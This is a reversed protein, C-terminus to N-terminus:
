QQRCLECKGYFVTKRSNVEFAHAESIHRTIHTVEDCELNFIGDCVECKMHCTDHEDEGTDIYQFCTVSSGDFNHKRVKGESVLKELQRYVTPRSIGGYKQQLHGVIQSATVFTDKVSMLYSIIMQGNKTNYHAPRQM